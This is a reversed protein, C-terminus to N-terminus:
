ATQSYRKDEFFYKEMISAFKEDTLPKAIIDSNGSRFLKDLDNIHNSTTLMVIVVKQQLRLKQFEELFEFGDMVPMNIDLLILEPVPRGDEICSNIYKIGELGNYTIGVCCTEQMKNILRKNIFNTIADDEVLLIHEIKGM